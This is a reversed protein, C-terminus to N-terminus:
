KMKFIKDENQFKTKVEDINGNEVMRNVIKQLVKDDYPKTPIVKDRNVDKKPYSFPEKKAEETGLKRIGKLLDTALKEIDTKKM